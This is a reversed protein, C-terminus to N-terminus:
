GSRNIVGACRGCLSDPQDAVHRWCRPCKHKVSPKIALSLMATENEATGVTCCSIIHATGNRSDHPFVFTAGVSM